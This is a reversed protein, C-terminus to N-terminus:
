YAKGKETLYYKQNRSTPKHPIILAVLGAEIAPQLYNRRFNERDSLGLIEQLESRSHVGTFVKLLEKVQLTDQMTDQLTDQLTRIVSDSSPLTVRLFNESFYFSEQLM